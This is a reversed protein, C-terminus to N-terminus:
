GLGADVLLRPLGLEACRSAVLNADVRKGAAALTEAVLLQAGLAALPRRAGDIGALLDDARRCARDKDDTSDSASLLRIASNEDLEATMMALGDGRPVARPSRLHAAVTPAIDIGLRVRENNIAAALRPLRLREAVTMGADLHEEAAALDGNAAKVKAGGVYRAALYDVGGGEPGFEYSADLLSTAEDL